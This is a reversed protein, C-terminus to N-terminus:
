IIMYNIENLLAAELNVLSINTVLVKNYYVPHIKVERVFENLCLRLLGIYYCREMIYSFYCKSDMDCPYRRISNSPVYSGLITDSSCGDILVRLIDSM